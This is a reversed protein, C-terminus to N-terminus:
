TSLGRASAKTTATINWEGKLWVMFLVFRGTQSIVKRCQKTTILSVIYDTSAVEPIRYLQGGLTVIVSHPRSKYVVHHKWM